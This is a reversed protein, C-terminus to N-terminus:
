TPDGPAPTIALTSPGSFLGTGNIVVEVHATHQGGHLSHGYGCDECWGYDDRRELPTLHTPCLGEALPSTTM